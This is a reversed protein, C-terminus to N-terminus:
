DSLEISVHLSLCARLHDSHPPYLHIDGWNSYIPVQANQIDRCGMENAESKGVRGAWEDCKPLTSSWLWTSEGHSYFTGNTRGM